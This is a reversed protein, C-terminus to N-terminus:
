YEWRGGPGHVGGPTRAPAGGSSAEFAWCGHGAGVVLESGRLEELRRNYLYFGRGNLTPRLEFRQCVGHAPDPKPAYFRCGRCQDGMVEAEENREAMRTSRDWRGSFAGGSRSRLGKGERFGMITDWAEREMRALEDRSASHVKRSQERSLSRFPPHTVRRRGRRARLSGWPRRGRRGCRPLKNEGRWGSVSVSGLGIKKELPIAYARLRRESRRRKVNMFRKPWSAAKPYPRELYGEIVRLGNAACVNIAESSDEGVGECVRRWEGERNGHDM